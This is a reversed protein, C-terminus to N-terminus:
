QLASQRPHEIFARVSGRSNSPMSPAMTSEHFALEEPWSLASSSSIATRVTTAPAHAPESTREGTRRHGFSYRNRASEDQLVSRTAAPLSSGGEFAVGRDLRPRRQRAGDARSPCAGRGLNPLTAESDLRAQRPHLYQRALLCLHPPAPLYRCPLPLCRPHQLHFRLPHPRPQHPPALRLRLPHPQNPLWANATLVSAIARVNRMM